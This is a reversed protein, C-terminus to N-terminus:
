KRFSQKWFSGLSRGDATCSKSCGHNSFCQGSSTLGGMVSGWGGESVQLRKKATLVRHWKESPDTGIHGADIRTM